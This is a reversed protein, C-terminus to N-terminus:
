GVTHEPASRALHTGPEPIRRSERHTDRQRGRIMHQGRPGSRESPQHGHAGRKGCHMGAIEVRRSRAALPHLPDGDSGHEPALDDEDGHREIQQHRPRGLDRDGDGAGGHQRCQAQKTADARAKGRM